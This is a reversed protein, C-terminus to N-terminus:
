SQATITTAMIMILDNVATTSTALTTITLTAATTSASTLRYSNNKSTVSNINSKPKKKSSISAVM